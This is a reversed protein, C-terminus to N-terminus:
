LVSPRVGVLVAPLYMLLRLFFFMQIRSHGEKSYESLRTNEGTNQPM